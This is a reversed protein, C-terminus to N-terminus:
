LLFSFILTKSVEQNYIMEGKFEKIMRKQSIGNYDIKSQEGLELGHLEGCITKLLTSCGSGPRGLVILLEGPNLCGDFSHLIQKRPKKNFSFFEGLRLPATVASGVTNQLQLASGSGFVNLNRYSVGMSREELGGAMMQDLFRRVWKELDFDKHEPNVAPDDEDITGSHGDPSPQDASDSFRRTLATAIRVLESRDLDEIVAQSGRRTVPEDDWDSGASGSASAEISNRSHQPYVTHLHADQQGNAPTQQQVLLEPARRDRGGLAM